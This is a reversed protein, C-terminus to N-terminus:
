FSRARHWRYARQSLVFGPKAFMGKRVVRYLVATLISRRPKIRTLL